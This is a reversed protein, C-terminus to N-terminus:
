KVEGERVAASQQFEQGSYPARSRPGGAGGVDRERGERVQADAPLVYRVSRSGEGVALLALM